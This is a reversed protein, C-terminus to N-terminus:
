SLSFVINQKSFRCVFSLRFVPIYEMDYQASELLHIAAKWKRIREVLGKVLGAM